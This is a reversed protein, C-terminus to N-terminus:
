APRLTRLSGTLLRYTLSPICSHTTGVLLAVATLVGGLAYGMAAPGVMFAVATAALWVAAIGCAFRRPARNPPLPRTRTIRRVGVNYLLDFPHVPFLAGAAAVPVLAWLLAPLALATGLGMVVACIAPTFRLWPGVEGLTQDDFGTFGQVELRWRTAHDVTKGQM